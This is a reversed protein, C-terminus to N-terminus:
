DFADFYESIATATTSATRRIPKAIGSPGRPDAVHRGSTFRQGNLDGALLEGPVDVIRAGVPYEAARVELQEIQLRVRESEIAVIGGRFVVDRREILEIYGDVPRDDHPEPALVDDVAEAHGLKAHLLVRDRAEGDRDM